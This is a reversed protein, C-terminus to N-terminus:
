GGGASRGIHRFDTVAASEDGCCWGAGSAGPRRGARSRIALMVLACGALAGAQSVLTTMTVSSAGLLIAIAVAFASGGSVGLLGPEALANRTLAQLLAGAVALALGTIVGTALRPLRLETVVFRAEDSGQGILVALADSPSVPGAGWLLSSLATALVFFVAM